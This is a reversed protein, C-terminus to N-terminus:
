DNLAKRAEELIDRMRAEESLMWCIGLVNEISKGDSIGLAEEEYEQVTRVNKAAWEFRDSTYVSVQGDAWETVEDSLDDDDKIAQLFTAEDDYAGTADALEELAEIDTADLGKATLLDKTEQSFNM